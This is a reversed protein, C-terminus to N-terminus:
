TFERDAEHRKNDEVIRNLLDTFAKLGEPSDIHYLGVAFGKHWERPSPCGCHGDVRVEKGHSAHIEDAYNPPIGPGTASWYYWLRKFKWNHLFGVLHTKVEGSKELIMKAIASEPWNELTHVPSNKGFETKALDKNVNEYIPVIGAAKLEADLIKDNEQVDDSARNPFHM